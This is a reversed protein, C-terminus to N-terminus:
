RRLYDIVAVVAGGIITGVTGTVALFKKNRSELADIRKCQIPCQKSVYNVRRGIIKVLEIAGNPKGLAEDMENEFELDDHLPM